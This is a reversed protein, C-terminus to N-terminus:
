KDRESARVHTWDWNSRSFPLLFSGIARYAPGDKLTFDPVCTSILHPFLKSRSQAQPVHSYGRKKNFFFLKIQKSAASKERKSNGLQPTPLLGQGRSHVGRIKVCSATRHRHADLSQLLKKEKKKGEGGQSHSFGHTRGELSLSGSKRRM